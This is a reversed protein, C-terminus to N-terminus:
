ALEDLVGWINVYNLIVVGTMMILILTIYAEFYRSLAFILLIINVGLLLTCYEKDKM